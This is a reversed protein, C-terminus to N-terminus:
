SGASINRREAVKEAVFPHIREHRKPDNERPVGMSIARLSNAGFIIAAKQSAGGALMLLGATAAVPSMTVVSMSGAAPMALGIILLPLMQGLGMVFFLSLPRRLFITAKRFQMDRPFWIYLDWATIDAILCIIITMLAYGGIMSGQLGGLILLVSGGMVLASSLFLIPVAPVNWASMARARYIISGHSIILSFASCAAAAHLMPHAFFRDVLIASVFLTGSLIEVSIWSRRLNSLLYIGRMPRGGELSVAIFGLCVLASSLLGVPASLTGSPSGAGVLQCFSVLLYFGAGSGALVFNAVAPWGWAKVKGPQILERQM